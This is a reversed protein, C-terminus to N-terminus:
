KRSRTPRHNILDHNNKTLRRVGAWCEIVFLLGIACPLGLAILALIM